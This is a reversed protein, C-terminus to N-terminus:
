SAAEAVLKDFFKKIMTKATGDILRQGVAAITGGVQADGEYAVETGGGEAPTLNLLGDGKVFGIRGTGEVVLRFSNPPTQETIRVKGEFAGSLSALAMKMKMRYEDPGVKELSECGPIARALMEPNQMVAYAREQALPLTYTGSIKV